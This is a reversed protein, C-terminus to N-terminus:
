DNPIVIWYVYSWLQWYMNALEYVSDIFDSRQKKCMRCKFSSSNIQRVNNLLATQKTVPLMGMENNVFTRIPPNEMNDQNAPDQRGLFVLLWWLSYWYVVCSM